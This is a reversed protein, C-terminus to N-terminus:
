RLHRLYYHVGSEPHRVRVAISRQGPTLSVATSFRGKEDLTVPKGEVLVESRLLAAGEVLVKGNAVVSGEVPSSLYASRAANDFSLHVSGPKSSGGAQDRFWFKHEGEGLANGPVAHEPRTLQFSQERKGRQLLLTFATGEHNGPWAFSVTPLLNQYLVTYRRGDAEVRVSQARKPLELRAADRKVVILTEKAPQGGCMVRLRHRGAPLRLMADRESAALARGALQLKAGTECPPLALRVEVPLQPTHITATELALLNLEARVPPRPETEAPQVLPPVTSEVAPQVLPQSAPGAALASSAAQDPERPTGSTQPTQPEVPALPEALPERTLVPGLELPKRLELVQEGDDHSVLVRGVLLDFRETGDSATLKLKSGRTLKAVARPTHIEIDMQAAAIEVVGIEVVVGRKTPADALFRLRTRPEVRAIGSPSLALVAVSDPGTRLGDGMRFRDHQQARSWSGQAAAIDREVRAGEFSTLEALPADGGCSGACAGMELLTVLSTLLVLTRAIGAAFRRRV